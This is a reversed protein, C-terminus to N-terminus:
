QKKEYLPTAIIKIWLKTNCPADTKEGNFPAHLHLTTTSIRHQGGMRSWIQQQGCQM